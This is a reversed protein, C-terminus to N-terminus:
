RRLDGGQEASLCSVAPVDLQYAQIGDLVMQVAMMVLLMGMLREMARTGRDGLLAYITPSIALIVASMSAAIVVAGAVMIQDHKQALLLILSITSPGAIFPIAVPVIFPDGFDKEEMVRRAPFVMGMAIMFLVIGGSIGLAYTKLGLASMIAEGAFVFTLLILLAIASERLVVKRRKTADMGQLLANIAVLNGFPDLVIFLLLVMQLM